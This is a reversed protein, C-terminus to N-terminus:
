AEHREISAVYAAYVSAMGRELTTSPAWGLARAATSDLLRQPTGSPKTTDYEFEGTFGVAGRAAEYYETISHDTGQGLNLM